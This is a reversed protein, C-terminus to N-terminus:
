QYQENKWSVEQLFFHHFYSSSKPLAHEKKKEIEIVSHCIFRECCAAYSLLISDRKDSYIEYVPFSCLCSLPDCYLSLSEYINILETLSHVVCLYNIVVLWDALTFVVKYQDAKLM